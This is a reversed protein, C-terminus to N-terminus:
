LINDFDPTGARHSQLYKAHEEPTLFHKKVAEDEIMAKCWERLRQFRDKPIRFQDGGLIRVTELRECWPWIMYDVMGPKDGSFFPTGRTAMEKEFADMENFVPLLLQFDMTPSLYCKYLLSIVKSFSEILLRDKAKKVPDKPYLPRKPYKEDLFDSIILSEYLYEGEVIVAPVKGLPFKELYWEPKNKLNINVIDHPINKAFLVLHVRQAYPCFRMSYLRIKGPEIPVDKSGTSLHKVSM